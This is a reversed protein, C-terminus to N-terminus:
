ILNAVGESVGPIKHLLEPFLGDKFIEVVKNTSSLGLVSTFFEGGYEFFTLIGVFFVCAYLLGSLVKITTSNKSHVDKLFSHRQLQNLPQPKIELSSQTKKVDAM